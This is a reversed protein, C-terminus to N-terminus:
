RALCGLGAAMPRDDISCHRCGSRHRSHLPKAGYVSSTEDLAARPVRRCDGIKVSEITGARLLEYLKSRSIGLLETAEKPTLLLKDM